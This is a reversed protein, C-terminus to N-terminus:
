TAISISALLSECGLIHVFNTAANSLDWTTAQNELLANYMIFELRDDLFVHTRTDVYLRTSPEARSTLNGGTNNRKSLPAHWDRQAHLSAPTSDISQDLPTKHASSALICTSAYVVTWFRAWM